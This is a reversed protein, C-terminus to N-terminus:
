RSGLIDRERRFTELTKIYDSVIVCAGLAVCFISVAAVLGFAFGFLIAGFILLFWGTNNKLLEIM